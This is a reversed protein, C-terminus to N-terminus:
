TNEENENEDILENIMEKAPPLEQTSIQEPEIPNAIRYEVTDIIKSPESQQFLDGWNLNINNTVDLKEAAYQGKHKMAMDMATAKGVLRYKTKVKQHENGEQDTWTEVEQEIGDIAAAARNSLKNIPLVVGREDVYEKGNRMVCYYLQELIEEKKLALNAMTERERQAIARIVLDNKLLKAAYAAASKAPVGSRIAAQRGNYDVPYECAFRRQKDTLRDENVGRKTLDTKGM